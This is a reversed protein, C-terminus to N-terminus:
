SKKVLLLISNGLPLLIKFFKKQKKVIKLLRQIGRAKDTQPQKNLTDGDFTIDDIVMLGGTKLLKNLIPFYEDYREKNGDLFIFDFTAKGPMKKLIELADGQILEIRRGYNNGSINKRAIKAFREFKEITVIRGGKPLVSAFNIASLGIFSGIELIKRCPKLRILFKLFQLNLPNSAQEEIPYERCLKLRFQETPYKLGSVETILSYLEQAFKDKGAKFYKRRQHAVLLNKFQM